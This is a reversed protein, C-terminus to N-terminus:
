EKAPSIRYIENTMDCSFLITGDAAECCDVPRALVAGNEGPALTSVLKLSGYPKGTEQDFLVRM